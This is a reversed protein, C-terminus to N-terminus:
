SARNRTLGPIVFSISNVHRVYELREPNAENPKM